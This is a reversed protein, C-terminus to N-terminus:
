RELFLPKASLITLELNQNNKYDSFNSFKKSKNLFVKTILVIKKPLIIKMIISLTKRKNKALCNDILESINHDEVLNILKGIVEPNIKGNITYAEIKKNILYFEEIVM